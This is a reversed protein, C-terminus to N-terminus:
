AYQKLGKQLLMHAQMLVTPVFYNCSCKLILQRINIKVAYSTEAANESQTPSIAVEYSRL